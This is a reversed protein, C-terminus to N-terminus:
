WAGTEEGEELVEISNGTSSIFISSDKILRSWLFGKKV